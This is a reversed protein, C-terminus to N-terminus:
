FPASGRVTTRHMLRRLPLDYDFTAKHQASCNDWMLLDGPEWRHRYVFEPQALHRYLEGLLAESEAADMGAIHSTHAENVFLAKRGTVPHTRVVPSAVDPVSKLQEETPAHEIVARGGRAQEDRQAAANKARYYRYSHVSKLGAIRRKMEPPLADYAAAASAFSTDGLATGDRFPVELAYLASLLSPQAKYSLDSHWFRGADQAGIPNGAKDLVNSVVLVEPFDPLRSEKRVHHELEGFRRTFAVQERPALRQGRLFVVGNEFFARAIEAFASETVPGSLEVGSIEAGLHRGVRRVAIM